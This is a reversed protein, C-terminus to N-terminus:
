ELKEVNLIYNIFTMKENKSLVSKETSIKKSKKLSKFDNNMEDLDFESFGRHIHFKSGNKTQSPQSSSVQSVETTVSGPM